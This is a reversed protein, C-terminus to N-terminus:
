YVPNCRVIKCGDSSEAALDMKCTCLIHSNIMNAGLYRFKAVSEVSKNGTMKKKDKLRKIQRCSEM